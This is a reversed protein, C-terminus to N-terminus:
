EASTILGKGQFLLYLQVISEMCFIKVQKKKSVLSMM